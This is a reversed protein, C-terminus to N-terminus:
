EAPYRAIRERLRASLFASANGLHDLILQAETRYAAIKEATWHTPPPALNAIRDSLKVIAVEPPEAAIRALSDAMRREKPLAEDKTLARVGRTVAPGFEREIAEPKTPTDELVDHLLAC